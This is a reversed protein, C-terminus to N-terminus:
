EKGLYIVQMNNPQIETDVEIITTGKITPINPLEITEESPTKLVYYIYKDKIFENFEELTTHMSDSIYIVQNTAHTKICYDTSMNKISDSPNYTTSNLTESMPNINPQIRASNLHYINTYSAHKSWTVEGCLRKEIKRIVKGTEFDLYDAYDGMKRLPENLYINIHEEIFTADSENLNIVVDSKLVEEPTITEGASASKNFVIRIKSKETLLLNLKSTGGSIYKIWKEDEYNYIHIGKIMCKQSNWNMSINYTGAKLAFLNTRVRANSDALAGTADIVSGQELKIAKFLNNNVTVPIKYGYPEYETPTTGLEIQINKYYGETNVGNERVCYFTIKSDLYEQTMTLSTGFKWNIKPDLIHIINLVTNNNRANSEANLVVTDGVKLEPCVQKLTQSITAGYVSTKLVGDEIQVNGSSINNINFLNKTKEGANKIEIPAEPTPADNGKLFIGTGQNSYFTGSVLDYAGIENDVKRYCPILDVKLQDNDYFQLNFLRVRGPLYGQQSDQNCAFICMNYPTVFEKNYTNGSTNILEDDIYLNNTEKRFTHIDTDIYVKTAIGASFSNYYKYPLAGGWNFGYFNTASTGRSGLLFGVKDIEIIQFKGKSITINSAIYDIDFYQTGTGEIYEVQQYEDPLVSNQTSNGFIKYDILDIGKSKTLVFPASGQVMLRKWAEYVTVGNVKIWQMEENNFKVFSM